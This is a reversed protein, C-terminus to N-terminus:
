SAPAATDVCGLFLNNAGVVAEGACRFLWSEVQRAVAEATPYFVVPVQYCVELM